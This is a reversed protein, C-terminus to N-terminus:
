SKVFSKEINAGSVKAIRYKKGDKGVQYGVRTSKKTEPCIVKVNSAHIPAEYQIRGGSAKGRAKQHKTILNVKEIVVRDETPIARIVNGKKGKDKGTTVVVFDGKKIKM